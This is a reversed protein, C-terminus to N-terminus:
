GLQSHWSPSKGDSQTRRRDTPGDTRRNSKKWFRDEGVTKTPYSEFNICADLIIDSVQTASTKVIPSNKFKQRIKSIKFYHYLIYYSYFAEEGVTKIPYNEFQMYADLIIDSM